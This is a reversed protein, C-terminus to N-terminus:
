LLFCVIDKTQCLHMFITFILNVTGLGCGHFSDSFQCVVQRCTASSQVLQFLSVCLCHCGAPLLDRSLGSSLSIRPLLFCDKPNIPASQSGCILSVSHLKPFSLAKGPSFNKLRAMETESPLIVLVRLALSTAYPKCWRISLSQSTFPNM